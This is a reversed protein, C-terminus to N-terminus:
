ATSKALKLKPILGAREADALAAAEWEMAAVLLEPSAQHCRFFRSTRHAV